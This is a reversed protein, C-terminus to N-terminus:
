AQDDESPHEFDGAIFADPNLKFAQLCAENCFYVREGGYIESPYDAAPEIDAGCVTESLAMMAKKRM